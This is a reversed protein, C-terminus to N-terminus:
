IGIEGVSAGCSTSANTELTCFSISEQPSATCFPYQFGCTISSTAGAASACDSFAAVLILTWRHLCPFSLEMIGNGEEKRSPTGEPVPTDWVDAEALTLFLESRLFHAM